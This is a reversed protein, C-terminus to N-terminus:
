RLPWFVVILPTGVFLVLFSLPLGLRWYDGFRYGGPGMVLTNCQHGIPTLFDCAAGIAVAMLFPDPNLQLRTAVSAAIPAFILVTAANNLFPTMAMAALMILGLSGIPPLLHTAAAFWAAVLESAGTTRLAESVPILAGLLILIPWEVTEYAERLTLTKLVLMAVAAGFFAVAVSVTGSAALAMAVALMAPALARNPARGLQQLNREALPLCGLASLRDSIEDAHVRFVVLDGPQFRVRRLRATIQAGSRSLALLNVRYRDRLRLEEASRGVIPSDPGVVAEVVALDGGGGEDQVLEKDHMLDLKAGAIIRALALADCQLVLIDDPFLTWHGSPEYRRYKERIIAAVTVEGEGLDELERVTKGAFPSDAPLRVEAQYDEVSFITEASTQPSRTSPLLRWGVSLFVIGLLTLVLGVPAFDFMRFPAGLIEQRVSSVIINPSTGILTMLGGLLAAFSLPMLLRSPSQNNRRSVQVAIPMFIALAGINKMFASLVAVLTALIGVQLETSKMHPALRRMFAEAVGSRAVAASVVLASGVIIVIDDSFGRFASKSDVIGVAVAILLTGLAVLDYRVRDWAFMALMGALIVFVLIQDVTM